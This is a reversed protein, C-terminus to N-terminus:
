NGAPLRESLKQGTHLADRFGELRQIIRSGVSNKRSKTNKM